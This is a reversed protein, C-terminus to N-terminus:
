VLMRDIVSMIHTGLGGSADHLRGVDEVAFRADLPGADAHERDAFGDSPATLGAFADEVAIGIERVLLHYRRKLVVVLVGFRHVDESRLTFGVTAADLSLRAGGYVGIPSAHRATDTKETILVDVFLVDVRERDRVVPDDKGAVVVEFAVERETDDEIVLLAEGCRTDNEVRDFQYGIGVGVM